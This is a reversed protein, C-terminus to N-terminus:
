LAVSKTVRISPQEMSRTGLAIADTIQEFNWTGLAIAGKCFIFLLSFLKTRPVGDPLIELHPL